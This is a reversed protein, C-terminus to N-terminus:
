GHNSAPKAEQGGLTRMGRTEKQARFFPVSGARVASKCYGRVDQPTGITLLENPIGGSICFKHGLVKHAEFIDTRDAHFIVSKEPLEAFAELHPM